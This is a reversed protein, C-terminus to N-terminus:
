DGIIELLGNQIRTNGQISYYFGGKEFNKLEIQNLGRELKVQKKLSGKTDYFYVTAVQCALISLHNDSSVPNPYLKFIEDTSNISVTAISSYEKSGDINVMRLRYYNIGENPNRDMREYSHKEIIGNLSKSREFLIDEFHVGDASREIIYTEIDIESLSVWKLAVYGAATKEANFNVLQVPLPDGDSMVFQSFSQINGDFTVAGNPGSIASIGFGISTGWTNGDENSERKYLAWSSPDIGVNGVELFKISDIASFTQNNGYNNIVWYSSSLPNGDPNTDPNLDIRSVVLDGNPYTGTPPFNLVVRPKEYDYQGGTSVELTQSSGGGLPATSNVMTPSGALTGHNVGVRDYIPSETENFQYYLFLNPFSAPDHTLHRLERIEGISLARDWMAVEDIKGNMNRSTWGKYSGIKFTTLDVSPLGFSHYAEEGNLYLRMGDPKAVMAVHNWEGIPVELGSDWWWAGDPWHYGLTNNGERFNFGATTGDNIAIGAYDPQIGNCWIWASITLENTNKSISGTQVYDSTTVLLVANGPIIEPSCKDGIEIFDTLTISSSGYADTLDLSVSYFGAAGYLVKPRVPNSLDTWVSGPFSWNRVVSLEDVLSHDYYIFTDRLCDTNKKNVSIMAIPQATEYTECKYVSRNTANIITNDSNNIFLRTSKTSVPLGNNFLAWTSMSNNKYYVTRRTGLYLGGDTGGHHVVCTLNEDDLDSTTINTWTIGGDISSYVKNGDYNTSTQPTRALWVKNENEFSVAIDYPIWRKTSFVATSPTIDAWTTGGDITKYLKKEDWYGAWTAVYMVQPNSWAIEIDAVDEEFDHILDFSVGDDFTKWLGTGNGSYFHNYCSPDFAIKSSRGIYYHANPKNNYGTTPIDITRSNLLTKKNYDSYVVNEKGYNVFGRFNDGGDTCLWDNLYVNGNKLLTGNHYTGGLMVESNRFGVGFGWFDTGQINTM